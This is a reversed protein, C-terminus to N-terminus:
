RGAGEVVENAVIRAVREVVSDPLHWPVIASRPHSNVVWLLMGDGVTQAKSDIGRNRFELVVERALDTLNGRLRALLLLEDFRRWHECRPHGNAEGVLCCHEAAFPDVRRAENVAAVAAAM